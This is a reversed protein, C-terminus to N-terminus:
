IKCNQAIGGASKDSGIPVYRSHWVSATDINQVYFNPFEIAGLKYSGALPSDIAENRLNELILDIEEPV